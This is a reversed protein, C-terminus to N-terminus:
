TVPITRLLFSFQHTQANFIERSRETLKPCQLFGIKKLKPCNKLLFAFGDDTIETCMKLNIENLTYHFSSQGIAILAADSIRTQSLSLSRIYPLLRLSNVGEDSIQICGTLDLEMLRLCYKGIACISADTIHSCNQLRIKRLSPYQQVFEIIGQDTISSGHLYIISPNLVSTITFTSVQNQNSELRKREIQANLSCRAMLILSQDTIKTCDRLDFTRTRCNLLYPLNDDTILGRHSLLQFLRAKADVALSTLRASQQSVILDFHNVVTNACLEVLSIVM